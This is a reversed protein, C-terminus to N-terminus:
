PMRHPTPAGSNAGSTYKNARPSTFVRLSARRQGISPEDAPDQRQNERPVVDDFQTNPM